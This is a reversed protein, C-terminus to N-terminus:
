GALGDLTGRSATPPARVAAEHPRWAVYTWYVLVLLFSLTSLFSANARVAWGQSEVWSLSLSFMLLYPVLGVLIAKHLPHVPLRYWLVLGAV